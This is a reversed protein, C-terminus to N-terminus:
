KTQHQTPVSNINTINFPNINHKLCDMRMEEYVRKAEKFVALTEKCQKDTKFIQEKAKDFAICAQSWNDDAQLRALDAKYYESCAKECNRLLLTKNIKSKSM